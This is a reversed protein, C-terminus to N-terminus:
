TGAAARIGPEPPPSTTSRARRWGPRRAGFAPAWLRDRTRRSPRGRPDDSAVDLRFAAALALVKPVIAGLNRTQVEVLEGDAKVLDVVKGNVVVEFRDGPGSLAEKLQAHLSYEAYLNM